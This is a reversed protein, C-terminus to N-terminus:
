QCSSRRIGFDVRFFLFVPSLGWNEMQWFL